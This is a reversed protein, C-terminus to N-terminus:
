RSDRRLLEDIQKKSVPRSYLYGQALRCGMDGLLTAQEVTEVGEAVLELHLASALSIIAKVLEASVKNSAVENVFSRDIKLTHIPFRTLYGLASYGTGFDDIALTFGMQELQKLIARVDDRDDILLSETIEFELWEPRCSTEALIASVVGVLDSTAFQRASLNVAIKFPIQRDNNWDRAAVCATRLVWKGIEVILGSDEAVRIFTNPGVVGKGPRHWRLLAEVGVLWGSTLDVKPQYYLEFENNKAARRLAAELALRETASATLETAYFQFNNRGRRKAYHMAAEAFRFLEAAAKSDMPYFAIGISATVVLEGTTVMAPESVIELIKRAINGLDLGERIDPLLVAFEDDGLRSVTDYDRVVASIRISIERLLRDGEDHGLSDNVEKFHDLGLVLLGVTEERRAAEALAKHLYEFFLSRNPLATLRDYFALNHLKQQYSRIETIDRVTGLVTVVNGAQDFEPFFHMQYHTSGTNGQEITAVEMENSQREAFVRQISECVQEAVTHGCVPSEVPTKGVLMNVPQKAKSAFAANVYIRRCIRDYRVVPNLVDEVLTHLEQEQRLLREEVQRHESIDEICCLFFQSASEVLCIRNITVCAWVYHGQRHRYRKRMRVRKEDGSTLRQIDNWERHLDDPHTLTYCCEWVLEQVSYGLMTCVAQNVQLFRGDHSVLAMGTVSLDFAIRFCVDMEKMSPFQQESDNEAFCAAQGPYTKDVTASM